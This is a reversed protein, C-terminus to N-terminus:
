TETEIKTGEGRERVVLMAHGRDFRGDATLVTRTQGCGGRAVAAVAHDPDFIGRDSM